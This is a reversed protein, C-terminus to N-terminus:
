FTIVSESNPEPEKNCQIVLRGSDAVLQDKIQYSCDIQLLEDLHIAKPDVLEIQVRAPRSKIKCSQENMKARDAVKFILGGEAGVTSVMPLLRERNRAVKSREFEFRVNGWGLAVKEATLIKEALDGSVLFGHTVNASEGPALTIPSSLLIDGDYM